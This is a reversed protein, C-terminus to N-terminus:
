KKADVGFCYYTHGIILVYEGAPLASNPKVRHVGAQYGGGGERRIEEITVPVNAKKDPKIPVGPGAMGQIPLERKEKKVEPKVLKIHEHAVYNGPLAVEFVPTNNTVRFEAQRGDFKTYVKAFFPAAVHDIVGRNQKMEVRQTGDILFAHYMAGAAALSQAQGRDPTAPASQAAKSATLMAEQVKASVGQRNLEILATPSTDYNASNSQIAAIVVSEALGAKVMQVVEANTLPKKEQQALGLRCVFMAVSVVILLLKTAKM